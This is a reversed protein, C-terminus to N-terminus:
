VALINLDHQVASLWILRFEVWWDIFESSSHHPAHGSIVAFSFPGCRVAVVICRPSTHMISVCNNNVFCKMSNFKGLCVEPNIWVECGYNGGNAAARCMVVGIKEFSCSFKCRSEQIYMFVCMKILLMAAALCKRDDEFKLTCM